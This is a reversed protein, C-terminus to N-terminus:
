VQLLIDEHKEPLALVFTYRGAAFIASMFCFTFSVFYKQKIDRAVIIGYIEGVM